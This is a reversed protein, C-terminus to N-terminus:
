DPRVREDLESILIGHGLVTSHYNTVASRLDALGVTLDDLRGDIHDLRHDIHDLRHDIHDLRGSHGRVTEAVESLLQYIAAIDIGNGSQAV